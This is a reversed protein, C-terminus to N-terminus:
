PRVGPRRRRARDARRRRRHGLRDAGRPHADGATPSPPLGLTPRTRSFRPAPQPQVLGEHEVFTERAKLHPHECPRASRSSRRGRLRRHGRVARGVRGPDAAQVHETVARAARRVPRPRGPGPRHGQRGLLTSWRTTSSRSWRASRCTSATPPRTSTTSRCGATSCTPAASRRTAAARSRVGRDDRQPARHRRRDRRRRGPGPRQGPGRAARRAPRHRPVDVGGGFDGVLNAPFQPGTRRGPGDRVARRHDRHLEHRPRGGPGAPRGPGLRDDPRLRAAPQAALCEEPGLGLRETSARACARSWCTPAGRGARARDRTAEPKKLDLAVSPRGRNLLMTPAAPWCSAARAARGPDRRRRPRGPDHLRAPGPGIGAIEVVKVGRLPGTGQGLALSMAPMIASM